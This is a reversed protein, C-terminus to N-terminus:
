TPTPADNLTHAHIISYGTVGGESPTPSKSSRGVSVGQGMPSGIEVLADGCKEVWKQWEKMGEKMQDPSVSKLMDAAPLPSRYLAIFNPM